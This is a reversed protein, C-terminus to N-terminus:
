LASFTRLISCTSFVFARRARIFATCIVIFFAKAKIPTDAGSFIYYIFSLSGIQPLRKRQIESILYITLKESIDDIKWCIDNVKEIIDDVKLWIDNKRCIDLKPTM